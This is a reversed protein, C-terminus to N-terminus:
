DGYLNRIQDRTLDSNYLTEDNTEVMTNDRDFAQQPSYSLGSGGDGTAYGGGGGTVYYTTSIDLNGTYSEPTSEPPISLINPNMAIYGVLVVVLVMFIYKSNNSKHRAM